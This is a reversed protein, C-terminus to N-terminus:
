VGKIEKLKEVFRLPDDPTIVVIKETFKLVVSLKPDTAFARYNGLRSNSFAGAICFMGGNGFTRVSGAMAEHDTEASVLDDLALRTNWGPREIVLTNNSLIYGRISFFPTVVLIFFPLGVMGLMWSTNNAPGSLIGILIIVILIIVAFVTIIKLSAGWPAKFKLQDNM